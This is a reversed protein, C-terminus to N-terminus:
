KDLILKMNSEFNLSLFYDYIKMRKEFDFILKFSNNSIIDIMMEIYYDFISFHKWEEISIIHNVIHLINSEERIHLKVSEKIHNFFKSECFSVSYIDSSSRNLIDDSQSLYEKPIDCRLQPCFISHNLKIRIKKMLCMFQTEEDTVDFIEKEYHVSPIEYSYIYIPFRQQNM